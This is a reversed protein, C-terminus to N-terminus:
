VGNKNPLSDKSNSKILSEAFMDCCYSGNIIGQVLHCFGKSWENVPFPGSVYHVCSSCPNIRFSDQDFDSMRYNLEEKSFPQTFIFGDDDIPFQVDILIADSKNDAVSIIGDNKLVESTVRMDENTNFISKNIKFCINAKSDKPVPLGHKKFYWVAAM